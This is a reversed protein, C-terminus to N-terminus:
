WCHVDEFEEGGGDGWGQFGRLRLVCVQVLQSIVLAIIRSSGAHASDCSRPQQRLVVKGEHRARGEKMRIDM